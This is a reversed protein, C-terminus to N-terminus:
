LARRKSYELHAEPAFSEAEETLGVEEGEEEASAATGELSLGRRQARYRNDWFGQAPPVTNNELPVCPCM